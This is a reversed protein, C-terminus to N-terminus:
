DIAELLRTLRRVAGPSGEQEALERRIAAKAREPDGPAIGVRGWQPYADGGVGEPDLELFEELAADREASTSLDDEEALALPPCLLACEFFKSLSSFLPRVERGTGAWGHDRLVLPPDFSTPDSRFDMCVWAWDQWFGFPLLGRSVVGDPPTVDPAYSSALDSKWTGIVHSFEVELLFLSMFHFTQLFVRYLPPFPLGASEELEDLEQTTATSPILRWSTWEGGESGPVTMEPPVGMELSTAVNEEVVRRVLEEDSILGQRLRERLLLREDAPDRSENWARELQRLREDSM